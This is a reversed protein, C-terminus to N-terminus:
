HSYNPIFRDLPAPRGALCVWVLATTTCSNTTISCTDTHSQPGGRAGRKDGLQGGDHDQQSSGPVVPCTLPLDGAQQERM